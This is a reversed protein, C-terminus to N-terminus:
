YKSIVFCLKYKRKSQFCLSFFISFSGGHTSCLTNVHPLGTHTSIESTLTHTINIHQWRLAIHTLWELTLYTLVRTCLISLRHEGSRMTCIFIRIGFRYKNHRHARKFRIRKDTSFFIYLDKVFIVIWRCISPIYIFPHTLLPVGCYVSMPRCVALCLM